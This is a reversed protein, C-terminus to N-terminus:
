FSLVNGPIESKEIGSGEYQVILDQGYKAEFFEVRLCHFGRKLAVQGKREQMAHVGDNDVVLQENVYLRSGDDSETYFTYIGDTQIHIYGEFTLAFDDEPVNEPIEIEKVILTSDKKMSSLEDLSEMVGEYLTMELGSDFDTQSAPEQLTSKEYEGKAIYSSEGSPMVTIAKIISNDKIVIPATYLISRTSPESGDLTYYIQASSYPKDLSIVHEDGLFLQDELGPPSPIYYGVGSTELFNNHVELRKFFSDQDRYELPSWVVEALAALRPLLRKEAQQESFVYETWLAGQAGLINQAEEETLAVPIPDYNYVNELSTVSKVGIHDMENYTQAKNFYLYQGPVMVVPHGAKAAAIGGDEGRWSMVAAGPALGGELIEDWGIIRRGKSSVFKEIRKIFYSQLEEVNQLGENKMRQRCLPCTEWPTKKAEDGGIHIYESPFLAMVESLVNEFFEFTGENGACFPDSFEFVVDDPKRWPIGSCSLEPYAYLAAWSHGPMEIEPVITVYRQSAYEVIDKIEEKTYYGGYNPGKITKPEVFYNWEENGMGKRWAGLETLKPYADIEIRWGQDDTLHWHFVNMKHMALIDIYRKVFEVPFFHRSVDLHMGRWSFRPYDLISTCPLIIEGDTVQYAHILQILSQIGYYVGARDHGEVKISNQDIILRYGESQEVSETVTLEIGHIDSSNSGQNDIQINYTTVLSESLYNKLDYLNEKSQILIRNSKFFGSGRKVQVPRPILEIMDQPQYGDECAFLLTLLSCLFISFYNKM